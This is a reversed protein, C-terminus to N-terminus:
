IIEKRRGYEKFRSKRNSLYRYRKELVEKIQNTTDVEGYQSIKYDVM